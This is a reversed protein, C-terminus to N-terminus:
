YCLKELCYNPAELSLIVRYKYTILRMFYLKVFILIPVKYVDTVNRPVYANGQYVLVRYNPNLNTGFIQDLYLATNGM